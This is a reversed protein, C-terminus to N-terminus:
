EIRERASDGFGGSGMSGSTSAACSALRPRYPARLIFAESARRPMVALRLRIQLIILSFPRALAYPRLFNLHWGPLGLSASRGLTTALRNPPCSGRVWTHLSRM